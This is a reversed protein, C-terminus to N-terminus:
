SSIQLKDKAEEEGEGALCGLLKNTEAETEENGSGRSNGQDGGQQTM